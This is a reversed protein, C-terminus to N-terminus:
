GGRLHHKGEAGTDERRTPDLGLSGWCFEKWDWTLTLNLTLPHIMDLSDTVSHCPVVWKLHKMESYHVM